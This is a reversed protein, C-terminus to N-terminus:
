VAGEYYQYDTIRRATVVREVPQFVASWSELSSGLLAAEFCSAGTTSKDVIGCFFLGKLLNDEMVVDKSRGKAFQSFITGASRVNRYTKAIVYEPLLKLTTM